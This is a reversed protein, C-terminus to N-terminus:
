NSLRFFETSGSIPVTQRNLGAVATPPGGPALSWSAGPGIKASEMLNLGSTGAVPWSIIVNNGSQVITIPQAPLANPGAAFDAQIESQSLAGNYIRFEDINARLGPDATYLSQGIFNTTDLGVTYSLISSNTFAPCIYGVPDILNNYMSIRACQVGNTYFAEYGAKPHYVIAIQLNTMNDFVQGGLVANREGLNGPIGQGFVASATGGGTHPNFSIYNGGSGQNPDLPVTDSYGFACLYANVNINTPFTAWAEITVEDIGSLIGSPLIVSSGQNGSLVLQGGSVTADGNLVGNAGGVSDSADTTFSYRHILTGGAPGVTITVSNTSNFAGVTATIISTGPSVATLMGNANITAVSPNSSSYTPHTFNAPDIGPEDSSLLVGKVSPYDGVLTVQEFDGAQLTNTALPQFYVQALSGGLPIASVITNTGNDSINWDVMDYGKGYARLIGRQIWNTVTSGMFGEPLELTGGGVVFDETSDNNAQGNNLNVYQNALFTSTDYINIHGGSWLGAGGLSSYNANAYLNMTCYTGECINWWGSGLNLSAGTTHMFSNTYLNIHSRLGPTPDPQYPAITWDWSLDGYVNLTCGFEPGFITNFPPHAGDGVGPAEVDGATVTIVNDGDVPSPDLWVNGSFLPLNTGGTPPVGIPNWNNPNNWANNGVTGNWHSDQASVTYTMAVAVGVAIAYSILQSKM